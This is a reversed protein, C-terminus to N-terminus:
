RLSCAFLLEWILGSMGNQGSESISGHHHSPSDLIGGISAISSATSGRRLPSKHSPIRPSEFQNSYQSLSPTSTASALSDISKRPSTSSMNFLSLRSRRGRTPHVANDLCSLNKSPPLVGLLLTLSHEAAGDELTSDLVLALLTPLLSLCHCRPIHLFSLLNSWIM